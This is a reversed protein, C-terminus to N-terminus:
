QAPAIISFDEFGYEYAGDTQTYAVGGAAIADFAAKLRGLYASQAIPVNHATLLHDIQPELAALRNVSSQYDSFKSGELHAYLPALYFTDGMFLRRGERDLLCISDPSHGPTELVELRVGGLDIIDGDSLPQTITYPKIAYADPDFGDPTKKWVWDGRMYEGAVDNNAGKAQGRSYGNDIARIDEFESNGGIHDYHSHSNVVIIERDTLRAAVPAMPAVGLGTDFLLARTKGVILFSIIEEFQGPEYIAFVDPQVRYIEFWETDELVRPYASWEPRPLKDWWNSVDEGRGEVAGTEETASLPTQGACGWLLACLAGALVWRKIKKAM